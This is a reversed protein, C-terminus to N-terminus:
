KGHHQLQFVKALGVRFIMPGFMRPTIRDRFYAPMEDHTIGNSWADHTIGNSWPMYDESFGDRHRRGEQRSKIAEHNSGRIKRGM